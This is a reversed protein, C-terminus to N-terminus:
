DIAAAYRSRVSDILVALFIIGGRAVEQFLPSVGLLNLANNVVGIILAGILTGVIRGEGGYLSTGGIIVSAIASFEYGTGMSPAFSNLRSTLVLSSLAAFAGNLVLTAMVIRKVNIGSVQAADPNSGAAYVRRGFVTKSLVLHGGLFTLLVIVIIAPFPGISGSGIFRYFSPLDYYSKGGSLTLVMGRAMMMTALTVLFSPMGLYAISFGNILGVGVGVVFFLILGVYWPMANAKMATVAIASALAVVSGMSVDINRGIIVFTTGVAIIGIAATQLLVNSLNRVTLFVPSLFSMLVVLVVFVLFIGYTLIFRTVSSVTDSQSTKLSENNSM